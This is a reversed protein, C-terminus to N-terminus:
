YLRSDVCLEGIGKGEWGRDLWRVCVAPLLVTGGERERGGV